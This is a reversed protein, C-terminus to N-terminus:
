YLLPLTPSSHLDGSPSMGRSLEMFSHSVVEPAPEEEQLVSPPGTQPCYSAGWRLNTEGLRNGEAGGTTKPLWQMETGSYGALLHTLPRCVHVKQIWTAESM